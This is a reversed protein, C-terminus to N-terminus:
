DKTNGSLSSPMLYLSSVISRQASTRLLPYAVEYEANLTNYVKELDGGNFNLVMQFQELADKFQEQGEEQPNQAEEIRDIM